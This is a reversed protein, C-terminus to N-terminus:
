INLEDLDIGSDQALKVTEDRASDFDFQEVLQEIPDTQEQSFSCKLKELFPDVKHPSYEAFSALLGQFLEQLATIDMAEKPIIQKEKEPKFNQLSRVTSKLETGLSILLPNLDDLPNEMIIPNLKETIQYVETASLNGAVGKLAHVIRYAGERDGDIVLKRIDDAANEYRNFFSFLAKTYLKENQWIELGKETDVGNLNFLSQPAPSLSDSPASKIKPKIEAKVEPEQKKLGKGGPVLKEMIDSLDDFNVPKGVVADMGADLCTEREEKMVSATLAIIPIHNQSGTELERIQKVAELGDMEPMHVDMLIIDATGQQFIQVAERGNWAKVLTHGQQMLRIESLAMNEEIDEAMLIRFCRRSLVETDKIQEKPIIDTAQMHATFHFTSGKGERSEAWIKGGMLETLQRSITTGLGTGGFRRATSGEAQTFPEFIKNVRHAPIGIGTDKISFHLMDTENRNKVSANKVSAPKVSVNIEGKETFKVANGVLNIIIQRLRVSDGMLYKSIDPHINCTLDPSNKGSKMEFVQITDDLLQHLDFSRFELDLKGSELKSLDLIDNILSLLSKASNLATSLNKRQYEPLDPDDLTLELFGLVSNMPTRIEHSMNALFESKAQTAAEAIEQKREAQEKEQQRANSLKRERFYSLFSLIFFASIGAITNCTMSIVMGQYIYVITCLFIFSLLFIAAYLSQLFPVRIYSTCFIILSFLLFSILIEMYLPAPRLPAQKLLTSVSDAIIEMGYIMGVPTDFWDHSVITTEGLIVIKDEIWAKLEMIEYQDLSSIDLFEWASIGYSQYLFRHVKPISSFDIYIDNFHDLPISIEGILLKRNQMKPKVGIYGSVVQVAIPWGDELETIEPWIRVRSLFTSISSPSSLNIYGTSGANKFIPLPYQLEQFQRNEDFVARSALVTRNQKLVDLLLSDGEFSGPLEFLLDTCIVKAGLRDLNQIIVALDTRRLPFKGYKQFFEDDITVLVIKDDPFATAERNGFNSRFGHRLSITQDELWSLTEYYEAPIVLLFLFFVFLIDYRKLIRKM